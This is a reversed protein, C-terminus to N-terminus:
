EETDPIKQQDDQVAEHNQLEDLSDVPDIIGQRQDDLEVAQNAIVELAKAIREDFNEVVKFHEEVSQQFSESREAEQKQYDLMEQQYEEMASWHAEEKRDHEGSSIQESFALIISVLIGIIEIWAELSIKSNPKKSKAVKDEVVEAAKKPLHREMNDLVPQVKEIPIESCEEPEEIDLDDLISMSYDCIADLYAEDSLRSALAERMSETWLPLSSSLAKEAAAIMGDCDLRISQLLMEEAQDFDVSQIMRTPLGNLMAGLNLVSQKLSEIANQTFDVDLNKNM